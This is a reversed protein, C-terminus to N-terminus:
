HINEDVFPTGPLLLNLIIKINGGINVIERKYDDTNHLIIPM